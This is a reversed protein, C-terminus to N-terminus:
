ENEMCKMNLSTTGSEKWLAMCAKLYIKIEVCYFKLELRPNSLKANDFKLSKLLELIDCIFIKM